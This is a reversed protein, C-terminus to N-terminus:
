FVCGGNQGGVDRAGVEREEREESQQAGPVRVCIALPLANHLALEHRVTTRTRKPAALFRGVHIIRNFRRQDIQGLIDRSRKCLVAYSGIRHRWPQKQCLDILAIKRPIRIRLHRPTIRLTPQRSRPRPTILYTQTLNRASSYTKALKQKKRYSIAPTKSNKADLAPAYRLPHTIRASPPITDVM